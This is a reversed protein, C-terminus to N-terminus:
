LAGVAYNISPSRVAIKKLMNLIQHRVYRVHRIGPACRRSWQAHKAFGCRLHLDKPTHPTDVAYRSHKKTRRALATADGALPVPANSRRCFNPMDHHRWWISVNEANSAMQAPFEGTGPSNGECLGTVRFKSARKSRRRFLRNILCNLRQHNSVGDRWNHRWQSTIYIGM